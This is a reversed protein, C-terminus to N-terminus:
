GGECLVRGGRGGVGSVGSGVCACVSLRAPASMFVCM